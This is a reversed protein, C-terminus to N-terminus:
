LGASPALWNGFDILRDAHNEVVTAIQPGISNTEEYHDGEAQNFYPLLPALEFNYPPIIYGLQDNGLGIIWSHRAPGTAMREELYPGEPAQSMDPPNPNDASVLTRGPMHIHTADYGGIAIEPFLEGPVTLLRLPGFDVLSMATTVALGQGSEFTERKLVGSLFAVRFADNQVVLPFTQAALSLQAAELDVEEGLEIADLAYEGLTMGIADAREFTEESYTAGDPTTITVGLTTMMGGLAGSLFICPGGLGDRTPATTWASGEEVTKRLAHVYDASLLTNRAGLTEPHSAWNVLTAITEGQEDRVWAAGLNPDVIIPDRIDNLVHSVGIEPDYTSVDVNGVVISGVERRADWAEAVLEASSEILQSRYAEDYGSSFTDSGWLGMTDPGEHNHISHVLVFDVGVGRTAVASRISEVDDRFLGVIDLAVIAVSVEGQELVFARAWIGDGEGVLGEDAGRIGRAPRNTGFGGIYIRQFSGDGEGEDPGPYGADEPCLRDCGCDFFPESDSWGGSRDEDDWAEFCDPVISRVAAGARLPGENSDCAGTPGGPCYFEPREGPYPDGPEGTTAGEGSSGADAGEDGGSTEGAGTGPSSGGDGTGEAGADDAAAGTEGSGEGVDSSENSGEATSEGGCGLVAFLLSAACWKVVRLDRM